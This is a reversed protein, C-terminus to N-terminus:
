DNASLSSFLSDLKLIRNSYTNRLTKVASSYTTCTDFRAPEHANWMQQDIVASESILNDVSDIFATLGEFRPRLIQWRNILTDVFQSDSLLIDFCLANANYLCDADLRRLSPGVKPNSFFRMPRLDNSSDIGVTNFALDFDWVPGAAFRGDPLSHFYCSRPGNPEANQCLENVIFYDALSTVDVSGPKAVAIDNVLCEVNALLAAPINDPKRLSVPLGDLTTKFVVPDDKYAYVDYEILMAGKPSMDKARESLYYVGQDVDNVYLEVFRGQPTTSALTTQRSVEFALANRMLSHDFFNALLVLRRRQPLGLVSVKKEFKLNYPKKPKSFTSNGRGEMQLLHSAYVITGDTDIIEISCNGTWVYKKLPMEANHPITIYLRPLCATGSSGDFSNGCAFLCICFLVLLTRSAWRFSNAPITPVFIHSINM